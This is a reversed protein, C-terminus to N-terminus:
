SFSNDKSPNSQSTEISFKAEMHPIKENIKTNKYYIILILKHDPTICKTNQKVLNKIIHEDIRYNTHMQNMYYVKHTTQTNKIPTTDPTNTNYKQRYQETAEDVLTNSFGNNIYM